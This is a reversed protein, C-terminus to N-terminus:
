NDISNFMDIFFLKSHFFPSLSVCVSCVRQSYYPESVAQQWLGLCSWNCYVAGCSALACHLWLSAVSCCYNILSCEWRRWHCEKCSALWRSHRRQDSDAHAQKPREYPHYRVTPEQMRWYVYIEGWGALNVICHHRELAVRSFRRYVIQCSCSM